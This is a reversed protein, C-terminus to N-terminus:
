NRITVPSSGAGGRSTTIDVRAGPAPTLGTEGPIVTRRVDWAFTTGVPASGIELGDLAVTVRDPLPGTATGEVRWRGSGTRFEARDVTVTDTGPV